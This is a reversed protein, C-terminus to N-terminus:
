ISVPPYASFPMYSVCAHAEVDREIHYGPILSGGVGPSSASSAGSGPALGLFFATM